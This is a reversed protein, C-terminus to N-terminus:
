YSKTTIENSDRLMNSKEVLSENLKRRRNRLTIECPEAMKVGRLVKVCQIFDLVSQLIGGIISPIM